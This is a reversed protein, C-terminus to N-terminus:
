AICSRTTASEIRVRSRYRHVDDDLCQCMLNGLNLVHLRPETRCIDDLWVDDLSRNGRNLNSPCVNGLAHSLFFVSDHV